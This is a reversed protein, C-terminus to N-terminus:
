YPLRVALKPITFNGIENYIKSILSQNLHDESENWLVLNLFQFHVDVM